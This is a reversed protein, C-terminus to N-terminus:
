FNGSGRFCKSQWLCGLLFPYMTDNLPYVVVFLPSISSNISVYNNVLDALNPEDGGM